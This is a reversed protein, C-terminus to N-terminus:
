YEYLNELEKEAEEIKSASDLIKVKLDEPVLDEWKWEQSPSATTTETTSELKENTIPTQTTTSDSNDNQFIDFIQSIIEEPKAEIEIEIENGQDIKEELKQLEESIEAYYDYQNESPQASPTATIEISPEIVKSGTETIPSEILTQTSILFKESPETVASETIAATEIAVTALPESADINEPVVPLAHYGAFLFIPLMAIKKTFNPM